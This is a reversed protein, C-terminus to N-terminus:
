YGIMECNKKLTYPFQKKIYVNFMVFSELNTWGILMCFIFLFQLSNGGGGVGWYVLKVLQFIFPVKLYKKRKKERIIENNLVM